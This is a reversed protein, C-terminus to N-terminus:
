SQSQVPENPRAKSVKGNEQWTPSKQGTCANGLNHKMWSEVLETCSQMVKIRKPLGHPARELPCLLETILRLAHLARLPSCRMRLLETVRKPWACFYM